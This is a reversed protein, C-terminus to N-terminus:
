KRSDKITLTVFTKHIKESWCSNWLQFIFNNSCDGFGRVELALILAPIPMLLLKRTLLPDLSSELDQRISELVEEAELAAIQELHIKRPQHAEMMPWDLIIASLVEVRKVQDLMLEISLQFWHILNEQQKTM